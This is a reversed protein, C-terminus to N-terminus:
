YSHFTFAAGSLEAFEEGAEKMDIDGDKYHQVNLSCNNGNVNKLKTLIDLLPKYSSSNFYQLKIILSTSGDCVNSYKDIWDLIQSYFDKTDEPYSKGSISFTRENPDFLVDPTDTTGNITLADMLSTTM